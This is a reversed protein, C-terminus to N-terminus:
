LNRDFASHQLVSFLADLEALSGRQRMAARQATTVRLVFDRQVEIPPFLVPIAGLGETNINYQGASTRCRLRLQRRGEAGSLYERVYVPEVLEAGFRARILYSAFIFEDSAFGTASVAASDFMACRGVSNPNGNTRVFLLDGDRLRLRGFEADDVPVLKLDTLDLAGAVVNPIRLAPKGDPGSKNSTGYRFESVLENLSSKPWGKPNTAPDGFMDLFISQTLTDLQSLAVRRKARLADAQDLVEAIRRQEPLAPPEFIKLALFDDVSTRRKRPVSGFAIRDYRAVMSPSRLLRDVYRPAYGPRLRFTPYLPSIIGEHWDVNQAVAGAWLLYPNFAIDFRRVVKYDSTDEIALRKKFRERQSVFGNKETLTLVEPEPRHGLREDTEELVRSLATTRASM